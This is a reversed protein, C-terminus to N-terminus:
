SVLMADGYSFFRYREAVAARYAGSVTRWDKHHSLLAAHSLAVALQTAPHPAQELLAELDNMWTKAENLQGTQAFHVVMDSLIPAVVAPDGSAIVFTDGHRTPIAQTEYPVPWRALTSDYFAMVAQEAAPSKYISPSNM